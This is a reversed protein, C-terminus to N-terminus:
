HPSEHRRHVGSPDSLDGPGAAGMENGPRPAAATVGLSMDADKADAIIFDTPKYKGSIIKALKTDLKKTVNKEPSTM